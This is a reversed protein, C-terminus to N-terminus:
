VEKNWWQKDIGFLERQRKLEINLEENISKQTEQWALIKEKIGAPFTNGNEADDENKILLLHYKRVEDRTLTPPLFSADIFGGGFTRQGGLQSQFEESHASLYEIGRMIMATHLNLRSSNGNDEYMRLHMIADFNSIVDSTHTAFPTGDVASRPSIAIKRFNGMGTINRIGKEYHAKVPSVKVPMVSFVRHHGTFGGFMQAVICPEGTVAECEPKEKSEGKGMRKKHYGHALDQKAYGRYDQNSASVNTLDYNHCPSIGQSILSETIGRRLWGLLSFPSVMCAVNNAMSNTGYDETDATKGPPFISHTEAIMGNRISLM